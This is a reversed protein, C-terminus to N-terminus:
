PPDPAVTGYFVAGLVTSLLLGAAFWAVFRWSWVRDAREVALTTLALFLYLGLDSGTNAHPLLWALLSHGGLWLLALTLGGKLRPIAGAFVRRM